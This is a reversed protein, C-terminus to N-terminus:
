RKSHSAAISRSCSSTNKAGVPIPGSIAVQGTTVLPGIGTPAFFVDLREREIAADWLLRQGLDVDRGAAAQPVQRWECRPSRELAAPLAEGSTFAILRDGDALAGMIAVAAQEAYTGTGMHSAATFRLDIGIRRM